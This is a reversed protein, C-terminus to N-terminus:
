GLFIENMESLQETEKIINEDETYGKNESIFKNIVSYTITNEKTDIKIELNIRNIDWWNWHQLILDFNYNNASLEIHYNEYENGKFSIFLGDKNNKIHKKGVGEGSIKISEKDIDVKEGDVYINTTIKVRDELYLFRYYGWRPTLILLLVIILAVFSSTIFINKKTNYIIEKRIFIYITLILILLLEIPNFEFFLYNLLIILISTLLTLIKTNKKVQKRSSIIIFLLIFILFSSIVFM